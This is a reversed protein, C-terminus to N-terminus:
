QCRRSASSGVAAFSVNTTSSCVLKWTRWGSHMAVIRAVSRIGYAREQCCYTTMKCLFPFLKKQGRITENAMEQPKSSFIFLFFVFLIHIFLSFQKSRFNCSGLMHTQLLSLHFSMFSLTQSFWSLPHSFILFPLSKAHWSTISIPM